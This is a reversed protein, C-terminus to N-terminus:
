GSLVAPQADRGGVREVDHAIRTCRRLGRRKPPADAVRSVPCVPRLGVAVLHPRPLDFVIQPDAPFSNSNM